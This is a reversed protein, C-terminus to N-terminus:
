GERTILKIAILVAGIALLVYDFGEFFPPM